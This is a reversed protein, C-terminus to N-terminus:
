IITLTPSTPPVREGLFTNSETSTSNDDVPVRKVILTYIVTTGIM